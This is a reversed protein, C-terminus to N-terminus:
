YSFKATCSRRNTEKAIYHIPPNNSFLVYGMNKRCFKGSSYFHDKISGFALSKVYSSILSLLLLKCLNYKM